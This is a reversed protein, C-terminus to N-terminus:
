RRAAHFWFHRAREELAGDRGVLAHERNLRRVEILEAIMGLALEEEPQGLAVMPEPLVLLRAAVELPQDGLRRSRALRRLRTLPHLRSGHRLRRSRAAHAAM